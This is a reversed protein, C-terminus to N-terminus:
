NRNEMYKGEVFSRMEREFREESFQEAHARIREADFSVRRSRIVTDALSQWTQEEFFCGTEGELVTELAGGAGYAIVPTGAAMAEVASIGFDEEQPHLFARASALVRKKEREALAGLFTVTPGALKRLRGIEEGDGVIVLPMRLRNFARIVIDVRKYPRLRSVLAYYPRSSLVPYGRVDVPPYIVTSERNYYRSIRSAVFHSNAIFYDVRSASLQDWMRLRNLVLPLLRRIIGGGGVEELYTNADSWLYRTPTHCYCIHISNPPAIVGKGFASASSLIVDYGSVDLSEIAAPMLALYWRLHSLALPLKQIFSTKIELDDFFDGIKKPDHALTFLPAEPWMHHLALVVREAGGIQNLHDHALAIKM